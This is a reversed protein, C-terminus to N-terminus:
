NLQNGYINNKLQHKLLFRCSSFFLIWKFLDIISLISPTISKIVMWRYRSGKQPHFQTEGLCQLWIQISRSKWQSPRPFLLSKHSIWTSALTMAQPEGKDERYHIDTNFSLSRRWQPDWLSFSWENPLYHIKFIFRPQQLSGLNPLLKNDCFLGAEELQFFIVVQFLIITHNFSGRNMNHKYALWCLYNFMQWNGQHQTDKGLLHNFSLKNLRAGLSQRMILQYITIQRM